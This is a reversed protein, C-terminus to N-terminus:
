PKAVMVYINALPIITALIGWFFWHRNLLWYLSPIEGGTEFGRALRAQWVQIPILILVWIVGSTIFLRQAVVLWWPGALDLGGAAAMGYGGILILVVGPFTFVWDTLTVLRQGFGIVAANGTRDAQYKWLGTVIINGLFLVVGLMHISKLTSYALM